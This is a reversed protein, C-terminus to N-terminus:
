KEINGNSGFSKKKRKSNSFTKTKRPAKPLTLNIITKRNSLTSENTYSSIVRSKNCRMLKATM